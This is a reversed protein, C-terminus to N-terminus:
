EVSHASPLNYTLIRTLFLLVIAFLEPCDYYNAACYAERKFTRGDGKIPDFGVGKVQFKISYRHWARFVVYKM